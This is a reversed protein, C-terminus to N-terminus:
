LILQNAPPNLLKSLPPRKLGRIWIWSTIQAVSCSGVAWPTGLVRALPGRVGSMPGPLCQQLAGKLWNCNMRWVIGMWIRELPKALTEQHIWHAKSVWIIIVSLNNMFYTVNDTREYMVSNSKPSNFFMKWTLHEGFGNSWCGLCGFAVISKTCIFFYFIFDMFFLDHLCKIHM